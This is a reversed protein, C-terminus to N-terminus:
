FIQHTMVGGDVKLNVGTVWDAANSVLFLCANAIDEPRGLRSLPAAKKWREVGDPWVEEIGERWILGPSVCNVRIGSPGFEAAASQTFMIVGAKASCYHAHMPAANEGEISAINVIAGGSGQEIMRRAAAQTCLFTSRLNAGMVDDWEAEPMDALSAMPYSGANNILVDIRGWEEVVKSIMAEVALRDTVDGQVALAQGGADRIEGVVSEAGPSSSRYHVGVKAGGEAFRKAIGAGIGRGAGTVLAVKGDLSLLNKKSGENM